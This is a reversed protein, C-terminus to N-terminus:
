TTRTVPAPRPRPSAYAVSIAARPPDDGHVIAPDTRVSGTVIRAWRVRHPVPDDGHTASRRSMDLIKSGAGAAGLQDGLYEALVATNVGENVAGSDDPIQADGLSGFLVPAADGRDVNISGPPQALLHGIISPRRYPRM